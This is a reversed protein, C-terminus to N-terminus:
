DAPIHLYPRAFFCNCQEKSKLTDCSKYLCLVLSRTAYAVLQNNVKLETDSECYALALHSNLQTPEQRVSYKAHLLNLGPAGTKRGRAFFHGANGFDLKAQISSRCSFWGPSTHSGRLNLSQLKHKMHRKRRRAPSKIVSMCCLIFCSSSLSALNSGQFTIKEM